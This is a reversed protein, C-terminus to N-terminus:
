PTDFDLLKMLKTGSLAYTAHHHKTPCCNPANGEYIPTVVNIQGNQLYVALHGSGSQLSGVFSWPGARRAWLLTTFGGGSGGTILPVILLEQGNALFGDDVTTPQVFGGPSVGRLSYVRRGGQMSSSIGPTSNLLRAVNRTDYISAAQAPGASLAVFVFLALTKM